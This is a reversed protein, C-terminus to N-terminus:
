NRPMASRNEITITIFYNRYYSKRIKKLVVARLVKEVLISLGDLHGLKISGDEDCQQTRDNVLYHRASLICPASNFAAAFAVYGCAIYTRDPWQLYKSCCKRIISTHHDTRYNMQFNSM